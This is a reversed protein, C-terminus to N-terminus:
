LWVLACLALVVCFASNRLLVFISSASSRGPPSSGPGPAPAPPLVATCEINCLDPSVMRYLGNVALVYIDGRSDEGYSIIGDLSAGPNCPVPTKSSCNYPLNSVSYKGSLPPNEYASWMVGNLDGYLYKGYACADQRSYSVYGGCISIGASHNYEIIPMVANISNKATVGGPSQSPQFTMTGEYIRWGYNGGKSILDVEEVLNQGVDACYFYSPRNRDFSCRWPNRLGYAWIEGRSNNRGVFPNDKPVTYNGYLGTTSSPPTDIDLRMMKGLPININQGNNWPDDYSGGDGLPYYLYKDTPGFWLGGAHHNEYPLGFAFIRKVEEPNAQLATAPTTGSANVTYEAVIASYQCANAGLASINCRNVSSCGCPALCDPWKRSDCDYSIFFRGNNLYDPHFAIGMFGLEGNSTTRHSINLFPASYDIIFPGGSGPQSVNAMYMLGSQTNVFVRDSGDPHPILNLYYGKGTPETANDLRELCIGAPPTYSVPEAVKMPTGAFCVNEAALPAASSICFSTDNNKYFSALSASAKSTSNGREQLGPEFPSNPITVNECATWVQNCYNNAGSTCLFPVPRPKSLASTVDYLDASYQDCKSCLIAKMVAACKANSINMADFTTKIQTDDRSNCCGNAAYEPATCFTLNARGPPELNKACLPYATATIVLCPVLLLVVANVRCGPGTCM